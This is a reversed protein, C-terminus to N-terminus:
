TKNKKNEVYRQKIVKLIEDATTKEDEGSENSALLIDVFGNDLKNEGRLKGLHKKILESTM